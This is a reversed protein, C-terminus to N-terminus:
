SKAGEKLRQLMVTLNTLSDAIAVSFPAQRYGFRDILKGWITAHPGAVVIRQTYTVGRTDVHEFHKM